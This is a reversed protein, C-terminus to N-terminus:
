YNIAEEIYCNDLINIKKENIEQCNRDGNSQFSYRTSVVIFFFEEKNVNSCDFLWFGCLFSEM